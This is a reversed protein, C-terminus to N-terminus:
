RAEGGRPQFGDRGRFAAAVVGEMRAVTADFAADDRLDEITHCAHVVTTRDRGFGKGVDAMSFGLVVHAAYMAIQRIRSIDGTCRGPRRLERSPVDFFAAALDLVCDCGEFVRETRRAMRRDALTRDVANGGEGSAAEAPAAEAPVEAPVWAATTRVHGAM